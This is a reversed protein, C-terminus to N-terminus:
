VRFSLAEGLLAGFPVVPQLYRTDRIRLLTLCGKSPGVVFSELTYRPNLSRFEFLPQNAEHPIGAPVQAREVSYSIGESRVQLKLQLPQGAVKDLTRQLAHFM